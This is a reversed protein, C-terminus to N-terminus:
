GSTKNQLVLTALENEMEEFVNTWDGSITQRFLRMTPYWPTDARDLLWRWDPVYKLAVWVPRGLAGALHAISTDSTIILDLSQMVAASDIFADPGSDFNDGLGEVTMEPPLHNLEKADESRQLSILRVGPIKSISNFCRVPFSKGISVGFASSQWCIGVKFGSNGIKKKWSGILAAEGALYPIDAPIDDL